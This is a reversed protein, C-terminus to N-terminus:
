RVAVRGFAAVRLVFKAALIDQDLAVRNALGRLTEPVYADRTHPRRAARRGISFALLCHAFQQSLAAFFKERDAGFPWPRMEVVFNERGPVREHDSRVRAGGLDQARRGVDWTGRAR